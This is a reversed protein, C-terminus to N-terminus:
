MYCKQAISIICNLATASRNKTRIVYCMINDHSMAGIKRKKLTRTNMRKKRKKKLETYSEKKLQFYTTALEFATAVKAVVCM